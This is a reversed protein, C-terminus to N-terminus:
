PDIRAHARDGQADRAAGPRAPEISQEYPFRTHGYRVILVGLAVGALVGGLTLVILLTRINAYIANTEESLNKASASRREVLQTMQASLKNAAPAGASFLHQTASGMEPLPDNPLKTAMEKAIVEYAALAQITEALQTKGEPTVFYAGAAALGAKARDLRQQMDNLHHTREQETAVLM